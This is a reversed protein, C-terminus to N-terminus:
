VRLDRLGGVDGVEVAGGWRNCCSFCFVFGHHPLTVSVTHKATADCGCMDCRRLDEGSGINKQLAQM